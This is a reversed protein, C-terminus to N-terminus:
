RACLAEHDERETVTMFWAGCSYCQQNDGHLSDLGHLPCDGPAVAMPMPLEIAGGDDLEVRM